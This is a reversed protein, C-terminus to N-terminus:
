AVAVNYCATYAKRRMMLLAKHLRILGSGERHPESAYLRIFVIVRGSALQRVLARQPRTVYLVLLTFNHNACLSSRSALM